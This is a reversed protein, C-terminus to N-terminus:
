VRQFLFVDDAPSHLRWSWKRQIWDLTGRSYLSVHTPDKVYWWTALSQGPELLKTMLALWAGPKLLQYLREFEVSPSYLHEAVETCLVFDYARQLAGEDPAFFPDYDTVTYGMERLLASATPHPGCGFDLGVGSAVLSVLPTIARRLHQCYGIDTPSNQHLEYRAQENTASLRFGPHMFVLGCELCSLYRRGFAYLEDSSAPSSCLPCQHQSGCEM